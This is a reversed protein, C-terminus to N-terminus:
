YQEEHAKWVRSYDVRDLVILDRWQEFSIRKPNPMEIGVGSYDRSVMRQFNTTWTTPVEGLEPELWEMCSSLWRETFPNGAADLYNGLLRLYTDEPTLTGYEPYLLRLYTEKFPRYPIPQDEVGESTPYEGVRFYKGLFQLGQFRGTVLDMLCRTKFSKKGFWDVHFIDWVIQAIEECTHGTLRGSLGLINDDGLSEVWCNDIIYQLDDKPHLQLIATWGMILTIISQILTNHSHGSTTGVFKQIRVGDDRYIPARLLSEEVFAWYADYRPYDGQHYQRRLINVAIRVMWPDISSDFKKADFCFFENFTAFRDIFNRSGGHYWSLGVAIPYKDEGYAKTLQNETVGCLKLDRQSMMLILRGVAPVKSEAEEKIMEAVKGRGGLRVDHPAVRDGALLHEMCRKADITAVPDAERRTKFGMMAYEIGPFKAGAYKVEDLDSVAPFILYNPLDLLNAVHATATRLAPQFIASPSHPARDFHKLHAMEVPTCAKVFTFQEPKFDPIVPPNLLTYEVILPDPEATILDKNLKGYQEIRGIVSMYQFMGSLTQIEGTRKSNSQMRRVRKRRRTSASGSAHSSPPTSAETPTDHEYRTRKRNNIAISGGIAASAIGAIAAAFSAM